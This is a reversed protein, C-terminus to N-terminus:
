TYSESVKMKTGIMTQLSLEVIRLLLPKLSKGRSRDWFRNANLVLPLDIHLIGYGDIQAITRTEDISADTDVFPYTLFLEAPSDEEAPNQSFTNDKYYIHIYLHTRDLIM